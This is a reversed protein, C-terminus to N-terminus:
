VEGGPPGYTAGKGCGEEVCKKACDKSPIISETPNPLGDKVLQNKHEPCFRRNGIKIKGTKKCMKYQCQRWLKKLGPVEDKHKGCYTQSEGPFGYGLDTVPCGTLSRCMKDTNKGHKLNAAIRKMFAIVADPVDEADGVKRKAGSIQREKDSTGQGTNEADEDVAQAMQAPRHPCVKKHYRLQQANDCIKDCPSNVCPYTEDTHEARYHSMMSQKTKFDGGCTPFDCEIRPKEKGHQELQHRHFSSTTTLGVKCTPCILSM